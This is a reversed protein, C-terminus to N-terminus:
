YDPWHARLKMTLNMSASHFDKQLTTNDRLANALVQAGSATFFNSVLDLQRLVTNHKLLSALLPAVNDPLHNDSLDLQQLATFRQIIVAMITMADVVRM